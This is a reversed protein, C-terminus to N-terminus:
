YPFVAEDLYCLLYRAEGSKTQSVAIMDAITVTLIPYLQSTLPFPKWLSTHRENANM